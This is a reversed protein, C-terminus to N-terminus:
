QMYAHMYAFTTPDFLTSENHTTEQFTYQFLFTYTMEHVTTAYMYLRRCARAYDHTSMDRPGPGFVYPWWCIAYAHVSVCIAYLTTVFYAKRLQADFAAYGLRARLKGCLEAPM